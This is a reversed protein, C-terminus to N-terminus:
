WRAEQRRRPRGIAGDAAAMGRRGGDGQGREIPTSGFSFVKSNRRPGHLPGPRAWRPPRGGEDLARSRRNRPCLSLVRDLGAVSFVEYLRPSVSSVTLAGGRARLREPCRPPLGPHHQDLLGVTPWTWKSTRGSPQRPSSSCSDGLTEAEPEYLRAGVPFPGPQTQPTPSRWPSGHAARVPFRDEQPSPGSSRRGCACGVKRRGTTTRALGSALLSIAYKRCPSPFPKSMPTSLIVSCAEM